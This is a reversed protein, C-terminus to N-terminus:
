KGKPILLQMLTNELEDFFGNPWESIRGDSDILLKQPNATIGDRSDNMDFYLINVLNPTIEENYVALRIGNIIHDSHTELFIQVGNSAALCILKGLISQGRPHLHAEPNELIFIAGKKATLLITIIPLINTLGYGVNTARFPNSYEIQGKFEYVLSVLDLDNHEKISLRVGPRLESLWANVQDILNESKEEKHRMNSFEIKDNANTALYSPTYEGHTGLYKEEKSRFSSKEFSAKPGIREATLYYFDENFLSIDKLEEIKYMNTELPLVDSERKYDWQWIYTSNNTELGIRIFEDNANQFLADRGTGVSVYEGNLHLDQNNSQKSMQRLLLLSQLFSSKGSGNLGTFINVGALPMEQNQFCKFNTIKVKKLM